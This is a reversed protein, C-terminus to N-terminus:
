FYHNVSIRHHKQNDKNDNTYVILKPQDSSQLTIKSLIFSVVIRIENWAPLVIAKISAKLESVGIMNIIRKLNYAILMLGVDASARLKGKKTLIYDFSWQRKITGFPHEVIAQRRKYTQENQTVRQANQEIYQAFESRQVIKGNQKATTCQSRVPCQRCSKTKYQKFRYNRAKYWSGNSTLVKGQPCTYTDTEEDYNFHEVNYEPNPAQAARGIGPVAVLTEVGLDNAIKFESGTHYGKDYLATFTATRLLTKARRLMAGMAKKDNQNTLQYDILLNHKADTTTQLTYCVETIMHRVIQHRSDPDTTSIQKQGSKTLQKQLKQYKDKRKTQKEIEQKIVKKKDGDAQALAAEHEALKKDIYDLHRKIKKKNYNNKKSNQARLKTSDGAILLGGILNFNKAISVTQHFVRKIAKPNNKRFRAITNHDPKLNKLLWIVELNRKCEAELRRSSRMKNMYGYIYLKLLDAPHYGPRGDASQNTFGLQHLDLSNVFLDIMRVSNNQEIVDNLCTSFLQIQHRDDGQIYNM